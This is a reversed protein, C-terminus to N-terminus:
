KQLWLIDLGKGSNGKNYYYKDMYLLYEARYPTNKFPKLSIVTYDNNKSEVNIVKWYTKDVFSYAIDGITWNNRKEM